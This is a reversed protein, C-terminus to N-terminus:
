GFVNEFDYEIYLFGDESSSEDYVKKMTHSVPIINGKVFLFIADKADLHLRRRVVYIFQSFTLDQPTLYKSKDIKQIHTNKKPQVIIPVRNPYKRLVNKCEKTRFEIPSEELRM